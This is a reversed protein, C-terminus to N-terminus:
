PTGEDGGFGEPQGGPVDPTPEPVGRPEVVGEQVPGEDQEEPLELRIVNKIHVDMAKVEHQQAVYLRVGEIMDRTVGVNPVWTKQGPAVVLSVMGDAKIWKKGAGRYDYSVFLDIM